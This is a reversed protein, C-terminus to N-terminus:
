SDFSENSIRPKPEKYWRLVCLYLYYKCIIGMCNLGNIIRIFYILISKYFLYAEKFGKINILKWVNKPLLKQFITQFVYWYSNSISIHFIKMSSSGNFITLWPSINSSQYIEINKLCMNPVSTILLKKWQVMTQWLNASPFKGQLRIAM